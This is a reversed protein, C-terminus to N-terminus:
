NNEPDVNDAADDLGDSADRRVEESTDQVLDEARNGAEGIADSAGEALEVATEDIQAGVREASMDNDVWAYVLLAVGAILAVTGVTRGSGSHTAAHTGGFTNFILSLVVLALFVWFLIIAIGSFASAIGGFGFVAAVLAAVFFGIAWGLM